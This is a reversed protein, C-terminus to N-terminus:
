PAPAVPAAEIAAQETAAHIEATKVADSSKQIGLKTANNSATVSKWGNNVIGAVDTVGAVVLATQAVWRADRFAAEGSQEAAAYGNASQTVERERNGVNMAMYGSGNANTWGSRMQCAPVVLAVICLTVAAAKM